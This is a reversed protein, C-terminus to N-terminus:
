KSRQQEKSNGIVKVIDGYRIASYIEKGNGM